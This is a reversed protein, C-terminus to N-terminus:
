KCAESCFEVKCDVLAQQLAVTDSPAGNGCTTMCGDFDADGLCSSKCADLTFCQPDRDCAYQQDACSAQMCAACPDDQNQGCPAFCHYKVCAFIPAFLRLGEPNQAACQLICTNVNRTCTRVCDNKYSTCAASENCALEEACCSTDECSYCVNDAAGPTSCVPAGQPAGGAGGDSVTTVVDAVPSCSAAAAAAAVLAAVL